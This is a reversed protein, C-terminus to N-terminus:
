DICSHLAHFKNKLERSKVCQIMDLNKMTASKDSSQNM